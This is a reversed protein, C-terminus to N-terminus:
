ETVGPRREAPDPASVTAALERYADLLAEQYPRLGYEEAYRFVDLQADWAREMVNYDPVTVPLVEVDAADAELADRVERNLSSGDVKNPLVGLVDLTFEPQARRLQSELAEVTELVGSISQQGKRTMEMPILVNGTAILANDVLLNLTAPPDVVVHDYATQLRERLTPDRVLSEWGERLMDPYTVWGERQRHAEFRRFLEVFAENDHRATRVVSRAATPLSARDPDAYALQQKWAGVQDVLDTASISLDNPHLGQEDAHDRLARRGLRYACADPSPAQDPQPRAGAERLIMHGLGHLTRTDVDHLGLGDLAASLDQVTARNFSCALLRDPALGRDEVLVRLRHVVATTKGAGPVALVAAPGGAFLLRLAIKAIEIGLFANLFLSQSTAMEGAAGTGYLAVAYGAVWAFAIALANLARALVIGLLRRAVGGGGDGARAAEVSANLALRDTQDAITTILDVIEGVEDFRSELDEVATVTQETLTEIEEMQKIANEASQRGSESIELTEHSTGAVSSAQSTIEEVTASLQSMESLVTDLQERQSTAGDAIEQISQSVDASLETTDDTQKTVSETEAAVDDAFTQLEIITSELEDLMGNFATAIEAMPESEEDPELRQTLDGAAAQAMTDSYESATQELQERKKEAEVRAADAEQRAEKARQESNDIQAKLSDRMEAFSGYLRGIEDVRNSTLDTELDGDRLRGARRNLDDLAGVTNRGITAGVVVFGLLAIGIIGFTTTSIQSQLAFANSAPVHVLVVWGVDATSTPQDIATIPAHGMVLNDSQVAGVDGNLGRDLVSQREYRDGLTETDDDVQISGAASVIQTNSGAIPNRFDHTLTAVDVPIMLARNETGPIPSAFAIRGSGEVVTIQSIVVDDPGSFVLEDTNGTVLWRYGRDQVTDGAATPASSDIIAGTETNIYHIAQHEDDLSLFEATLTESIEEASGDRFADRTSILRTSEENKNAWAEITTAQDEAVGAIRSTQDATLSSAISSQFFLGLVLTIVAIGAVVATFKLLYSERARNPILASLSREDGILGFLRDRM